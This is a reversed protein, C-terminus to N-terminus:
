KSKRPRGRKVPGDVIVKKRLGSSILKNAVSFASEKTGHHTITKYGPSEIKWKLKKKPRGRPTKPFHYRPNSLSVASNKKRRKLRAPNKCPNRKKSKSLSDIAAKLHSTARKLLIENCDM